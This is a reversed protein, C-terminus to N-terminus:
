RGTHMATPAMGAVFGWSAEPAAWADLQFGCGCRWVPPLQVPGDEDDFSYGAGEAGVAPTVLDMPENCHLPAGGTGPQQREDFQMGIESCREFTVM